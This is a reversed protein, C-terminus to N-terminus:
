GMASRLMHCMNLTTWDISRFYFYPLNKIQVRFCRIFVQYCQKMTPNNSKKPFRTASDVPSALIKVLLESVVTEAWVYYFYPWFHQDDFGFSIAATNLKYALVNYAEYNFGLVVPVVDLPRLNCHMTIAIKELKHRNQPWNRPYGPFNSSTRHLTQGNIANLITNSTHNRLQLSWALGCQPM